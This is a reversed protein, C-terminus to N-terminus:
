APFRALAELCRTRHTNGRGIEIAQGPLRLGYPVGMQEATLIWRCLLSLRNELDVRPTAEWDLVLEGSDHDSYQKVHVGQGKAVGKWHIHRLPDGARYERFGVFEEGPDPPHRAWFPPTDGALAPHPYVWVGHRLRIPSWARFFGLPFTTALILTPLPLWGRQRTEVSLRLTISSGPEICLPFSDKTGRLSADIGMRRLRTPNDIHVEFGASEGAFVSIAKGPRIELSALNRFAYLTSHMAIGGLLFTLLFASSNNYNTAVLFQVFLLLALGFGRRTPLIYIRRHTLRVPGDVAEGGTFFRRLDLSRRLSDLATRFAKPPTM